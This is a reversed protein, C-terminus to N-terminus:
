IVYFIFPDGSVWSGDPNQYLLFGQWVGLPDASSFTRPMSLTVSQGAPVLFDTEVGFDVPNGYSDTSSIKVIPFTADLGGSNTLVATGTLTGGSAFVATTDSTFSAAGVTVEAGLATYSVWDYLAFTPNGSYNGAWEDIGTTPWCNLFIGSPSSPINTAASAIVSGDVLWTLSEPAWVVTYTHFAVSPDFNLLVLQENGGVGNALYNCQLMGVSHDGFYGLQIDIENAGNGSAAYLFFASIVGPEPSSQLSVSYTGYGYALNLSKIEGAAYTRTATPDTDPSISLTLLGTVPDVSANAARWTADYIPDSEAYGDSIAWFEPDLSNFNDIFGEDM